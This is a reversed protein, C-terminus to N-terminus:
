WTGFSLLTKYVRATALADALADHADDLTVGLIECIRGLSARDYPIPMNKFAAKDMIATILAQTDRTPYGFIEYFQEIGLWYQLFPIDFQSNHILPILRKKPVLNLDQFWDWLQDAVTYKDPYNILAKLPIRHAELAEQGMREPYTPCINTYFPMGVPDLNVDLPVVAIQIIEHYWPQRGTTEVDVAALVNENLTIINAHSM